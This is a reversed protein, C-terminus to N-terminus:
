DVGYASFERGVTPQLIMAAAQDALGEVKRGVRIKALGRGYLALARNADVDLAADYETIAIAPDGLKLYIFGRTERVDRNIPMLKLAMDCDALASVLDTGLITKTLCRNNYALGMNPDLSLATGYDIIALDYRRKAFYAYGRDYFTLPDDGRIAISADFDAIALDQDGRTSLLAGRNRLAFANRPDLELVMRWDVLARENEGRRGNALGRYLYTQENKPALAVARDLDAIAHGFDGIQGYADGRRVLAEVSEPMLVLVKDFDEIARRYARLHTALLVGRGYYALPFNPDLNIARTYDDLARDSQGIGDRASGRRYLALADPQQPDIAGDYHKLAELYDETALPRDGMTIRAAGRNLRALALQETTLTHSQIATSCADALHRATAQTKDLSSASKNLVCEALAVAISAASTEATVPPSSSRSFVFVFGGALGLTLVVGTWLAVRIFIGTHASHPTPDSKM